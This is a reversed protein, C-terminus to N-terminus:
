FKKIVKKLNELALAISKVVARHEVGETRAIERCGYGWFYRAILRRKQTPSLQDIAAWLMEIDAREMAKEETSVDAITNREIYEQDFPLITVPNRSHRKDRTNRWREFEHLMERIEPTKYEKPLTKYFEYDEETLWLKSRTQSKDKNRKKENEPVKAM